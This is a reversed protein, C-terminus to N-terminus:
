APTEEPLTQLGDELGVVLGIVRTCAGEGGPNVARIIVTEGSFDM